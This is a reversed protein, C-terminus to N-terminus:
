AERGYAALRVRLTEAAATGAELAFVFAHVLYFCCADVDGEAERRDAAAAYLGALATGDGRRHADLLAQELAHDSRISDSRRDLDKRPRAIGGSLRNGSKPDREQRTLDAIPTM